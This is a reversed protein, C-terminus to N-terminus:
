PLLYKFTLSVREQSGLYGYDLYTFDILLFINELFQYLYGFGVALGSFIGYREKTRYGIRFALYEKPKRLEKLLVEGGIGLNPLEDIYTSFDSALTLIIKPNLFIKYSAGLRFNIPLIESYYIFRRKTGLHLLSSGFYLNKIPNFHFGFDTALSYAYYNDYLSGVYKLNTGFAFKKSLNFSFNIFFLFDNYSYEGVENGPGIFKDDSFSLLSSGFGLGFNKIPLSFILSSYNIKDYLNLLTLSFDFSNLIGSTSPNYFIGCVDDAIATYAGGMATARAGINLKLFNASTQGVDYFFTFLFIVVM